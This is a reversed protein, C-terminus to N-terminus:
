SALSPALEAFSIQIQFQLHIIASPIERTQRSRQVLTTPAFAYLPEKTALIAPLLIRSGASVCNGLIFYTVSPPEHVYM